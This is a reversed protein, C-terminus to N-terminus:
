TLSAGPQPLSHEFPFRYRRLLNPKVKWTRRRGAASNMDTSDSRLVALGTSPDLGLYQFPGDAAFELAGVQPDYLLVYAGVPIDAIPHTELRQTVKRIVDALIKNQQELIAAYAHRDHDDLQSILLDVHALQEESLESEHPQLTSIVDLRSPAPVHRVLPVPMRMNTGFLMEQPTHRTAGHRRNMVAMRAAPLDALWAVPDGNIRKTLIDKVTEVLREAIGNSQPSRVATNILKVGCDLCFRKFHGAFEHGNDATVVDPLGYRSFWYEFVLRCMMWSSHDPLATIPDLYAALELAKIFGEAIILVHVQRVRSGPHFPPLEFPGCSDVHIHRMPGRIDAHQYDDVCPLVDKKFPTLSKQCPDCCSIYLRVDSHIGRWYYGRLAHTTQNVGCHGWMDHHLAILDWRYEVPPVLVWRRAQGKYRHAVSVWNHHRPDLRCHRSRKELTLLAQTTVECYYELVSLDADDGTLAYQLYTMLVADNYPDQQKYRLPTRAWYLEDISSGGPKCVPCYWPGSPAISRPPFLCRLHFLDDCGDCLVMNDHGHPRRCVQCVTATDYHLQTLRAM